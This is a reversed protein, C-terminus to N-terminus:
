GYIYNQALETFQREQEAIWGSDKDLEQAMMEAVKKAMKISKRADQFLIRRRRALFDEVTRSMEQRVAWVVEGAFIELDPNLKQSYDPNSEILQKVPGADAGYIALEKQETLNNAAGHIKLERSVSTRQRYGGAKEALNITDEAMKRYTTWKGGTITVLGTPSIMLSHERSISKTSKAKTTRVLPRLGAFISLVDKESPKKTLYRATHQLLFKVEAELPRPELTINDVPTDTTGILVYDDWPIAFLVRGDDTKPIMIAHHGPLFSKDLVLHIGQSPRIMSSCSPDSMQCVSDAFVGTANIVTKALLEYEKETELDRAVVGCVQNNKMMLRTVPMYNLSKAGLQHATQILNIILRADDFQGDYYLIGGKLRNSEITPLSSVTQRKSLIKSHGFSFRGALLDYIKLGTAYFPLQWWHYAPVIFGLKHVLHPANKLLLGREHLAELVLALNGQQLYRVGGHILKTSRSSTGKGFDHQELLLVRYGRAAAEIATGAGTAGGGIIIFDWSESKEALQGLIETRNM